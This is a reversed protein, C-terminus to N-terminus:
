HTQVPQDSRFLVSYNTLTTQGVLVNLLRDIAAPMSFSRDKFQEAVAACAARLYDYTEPSNILRLVAEVFAEVNDTEVQISAPGIVDLSNTADSAITPLRALMAEACVAPVGESFDSRTPVIM